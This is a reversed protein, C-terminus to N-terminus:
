MSLRSLFNDTLFQVNRKKFLIKKSYGVAYKRIETIGVWHDDHLKLLGQYNAILHRLKHEDYFFMTKDASIDTITLSYKWGNPMDHPDYTVSSIIGLSWLMKQVMFLRKEDHHGIKIFFEDDVNGFDFVGRIFKWRDYLSSRSYEYQFECTDETNINEFFDKWQIPEKLGNYTYYVKPLKGFKAYNLNYKNTFYNNITTRYLPLNMNPDNFDGYTLLVGTTYPDIYPDRWFGRQDVSSNCYDIPRQRFAKRLSVDIKRLYIDKVPGIKNNCVFLESGRYYDIRRDSYIIRYVDEKDSDVTDLVEHLNGDIDYITDGPIVDEINRNGNSTQVIMPIKEDFIQM